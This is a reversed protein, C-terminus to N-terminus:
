NKMETNKIKKQFLTLFTPVEFKNHLGRLSV